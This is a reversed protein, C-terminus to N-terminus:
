LIMSMEMKKINDVLNKLKRDAVEGKFARKPLEEDYRICHNCVGQANFTIVPDSIDMICRTCIRYKM